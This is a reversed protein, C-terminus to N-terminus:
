LHYYRILFIIINKFYYRVKWSHFVHCKNSPRHVSSAPASRPQEWELLIDESFYFLKIRWKWKSINIVKELGSNDANWAIVPIGLYGALQLLYQLPFILSLSHSENFSIFVESHTARCRPPPLPGGSSKQKRSISSPLAARRLKPACCIWCKQLPFLYWLGSIMDCLLYPPGCM